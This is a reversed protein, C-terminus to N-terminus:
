IELRLVGPMQAIHVCMFLAFLFLSIKLLCRIVARFISPKPTSILMHYKVFIIFARLDTVKILDASSCNGVM